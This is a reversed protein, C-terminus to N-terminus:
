SDSYGNIVTEIQATELNYILGHVFLNTPVFPKEKIQLVQNKVAQNPDEFASLWARLNEENLNGIEKELDCLQARTLNEQLHNLINTTKTWALCCGCDTHMIVAIEKFGALHIGALLSRDDAIAGLTRIIRVQSQAEGKSSFPLVGAAELNVRPDMCTIIAFPCPQRQVSLDNLDVGNLFRKNQNVLNELWTM